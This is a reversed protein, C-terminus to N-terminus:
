TQAPGPETPFEVLFPDGQKTIDALAQMYTHLEDINDTPTKGLAVERNYRAIRWDFANMLADRKARVKKIQKAIRSYKVDEAVDVLTYNRKWKGDTDQYVSVEV